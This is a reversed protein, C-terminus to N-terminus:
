GSEFLVRVCHLNRLGQSAAETHNTFDGMVHHKRFLASTEIIHDTSIQYDMSDFDLSISVHDNYVAKHNVITNQSERNNVRLQRTPPGYVSRGGYGQYDNKCYEILGIGFDFKNCYKPTSKTLAQFTCCTFRENVVGVHMYMNRMFSNRGSFYEGKKCSSISCLKGKGLTPHDNLDKWKPCGKVDCNPKTIATSPGYTYEDGFEFLSHGLEHIALRAGVQNKSIIAVNDSSYGAGGYKDDNHIVITQLVSSAPFCKNAINRTIQLDCCLLRDIGNCDYDCFPANVKDVYLIKFKAEQDTAFMNVTRMEDHAKM